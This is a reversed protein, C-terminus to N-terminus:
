KNYKELYELCEIAKLEKELIKDLSRNKRVNKQASRSMKLFLKKNMFLKEIGKALGIYDEPGALICDEKTVFEPIAAVSNTIPVLGSSMAEDRSVGQTDMRSPCLFIGHTKHLQAIEQQQIFRKEINVNSFDKLPRVTEDFLVGDGVITFSLKNFWPKQALYLIAKVALDNAYVKSAFPRVVLVKSRMEVDKERYSFISTDIPNHIVHYQEKSLKIELDEMVENAFHQSVFILKLNDNPGNLISRWFKMRAESVQQAKKITNESDYLFKRRHYPQIEAGHVWVNIKVESIYKELVAWMADDLFHVLVQSYGGSSLLSDLQEASGTICEIGDFEHFSLDLVGRLRFVDVDLGAQKYAAVRRHVFANRYLDDYSPYHNTVLLTKNKNLLSIPEAQKHGFIVERINTQGPGLIRLGFRLWQATEPIKIFHNQNAPLIVHSIREKNGDFFLTVWRVQLGVELSLHLPLAQNDTLEFESINHDINQYIYAHEDSALESVLHWSEQDVSASISKHKIAKFLQSFEKGTQSELNQDMDQTPLTLEAAQQLDQISTGVDLRQIDDVVDRIKQLISTDLMGDKCYNFEDVGFGKVSVEPKNTKLSLWDYLMNHAESLAALKVISSFCNLDTSKKYRQDLKNEILESNVLSYFGSKGFANADVYRTALLLDLLYNPGYYDSESLLGVYEFENTLESVKVRKAEDIHMFSVRSDDIESGADSSVIVLKTNKYSQRKFNEVVYKASDEGMVLAFFIVSPSFVIKEKASVKSYMYALRDQYTHEHMVKRLGALCIKAKNLKSLNGLQSLLQSGSDSAFVLDGFVVNLARAYNSVTLTNSALLEFVRRAFMTQSSKISNLNIAYNYGKYARDIEDFDLTGVIYQDYNEPFQYDPNDKGFNRDFIDLPKYSPLTDSFNDLVRTREPYRKYYAGAFCFADKRQYVEIPNHVQPQCAFPLYYVRDHGLDRKYCGVCDIDTTFVYNFLSATTLFSNFHVPDEKNWFITPINKERCWDIIDRLEKANHGVKAGWKDDKGRWASEAFFVHPSFQEIERRWGEPTLQKFECEMSFSSFSFNDLICAIKLSSVEIDALLKPVQHNSKIFIAAKSAQLKEYAAQESSSFAVKDKLTNLVSYAQDVFGSKVLSFGYWKKRYPKPDLFYAISSFFLVASSDGKFKGKALETCKKAIKSKRWMLGSFLELVPQRWILQDQRFLELRQAVQLKLHEINQALARIEDKLQRNKKTVERYKKNALDAKKSFDSVREKARRDVEKLKLVLKKKQAVLYQNEQMVDHHKLGLSVLKEKAQEQDSEINRLVQRLDKIHSMLEDVTVSDKNFKKELIKNSSKQPKVSRPSIQSAKLVSERQNYLLRQTEEYSSDLDDVSTEISGTVRRYKDNALSLLRKTLKLQEANVDLETQNRLFEKEYSELRGKVAALELKTFSLEKNSAKIQREFYEFEEINGKRM